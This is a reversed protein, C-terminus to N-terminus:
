PLWYLTCTCMCVWGQAPHLGTAVTTNTTGIRLLSIRCHIFNGRLWLEVYLPKFLLGFYTTTLVVTVTQQFWFCSLYTKFYHHFLLLFLHSIPGVVLLEFLFHQFLLSWLPSICYPHFHCFLLAPPSFLLLCTKFHHFLLGCIIQLSHFPSISIFHIFMVFPFVIQLPSVYDFNHFLFHQFLTWLQSYSTAFYCVPPIVFQLIRMWYQQEKSSCKTRDSNHPSM